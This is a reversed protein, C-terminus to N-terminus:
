SIHCQYNSINEDSKFDDVTQTALQQSLDVLETNTTDGLFLLASLDDAANCKHLQRGNHRASPLTMYRASDSRGRVIAYDHGLRNDDSLPFWLRYYRASWDYIVLTRQFTDEQLKGKLYKSFNPSCFFQAVHAPVDRQERGVYKCWIETALDISMLLYNDIYCTLATILPLFDFHKGHETSYSKLENFQKLAESRPLYKLIMRWMHRDLAWLAYQFATINNFVRGSYDILKGKALLLASSRCCITEAIDQEGRAVNKLLYSVASLHLEDKLAGHFFRCTQALRGKSQINLKSSIRSFFPDHMGNEIYNILPSMNSSEFEATANFNDINNYSKTIDLQENSNTELRQM